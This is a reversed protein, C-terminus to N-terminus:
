HIKEGWLHILSIASPIILCSSTARSNCHRLETLSIGSSDRQESVFKMRPCTDQHIQTCFYQLKSFVLFLSSKTICIPLDSYYQYSIFKIKTNFIGFYCLCGFHIPEWSRPFTVRRQWLSFTVNHIRQQSFLNQMFCTSFILHQLCLAFLHDFCLM